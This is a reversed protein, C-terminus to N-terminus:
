SGSVNHPHNKNSSQTPEPFTIEFSTGFDVKGLTVTGDLQKTLNKVLRLGLTDKQEAFLDKTAGVGNDSVVLKYNKILVGKKNKKPSLQKFDVRIEFERGKLTPPFAYKMCNSILENLILGCPVAADINLFIDEVDTTIKIKRTHSEFTRTLYQILDKLYDKFGIQDLNESQYLKEHVLAMSQIRNESSKFVELDDKDKIKSFQLRLLSATIQLNNKVRHHIEKLLVEKERLAAKAKEEAEKSETIDFAVGQLFLPIGQNDRVMRVETHVWITTGTRTFVRCESRFPGGSISARTFELSLRERDEPHIQYFWRIPDSVWEAPSFGLLEEIQPSVYLESSLQDLSAMFTVVPIQEVLTRYRAEARQESSLPTSSTTGEIRNSIVEHVKPVSQFYAEAMTELIKLSENHTKLDEESLHSPSNFHPPLPKTEDKIKPM